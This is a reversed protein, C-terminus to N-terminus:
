HSLRKCLPGKEDCTYRRVNSPDRKIKNQKKDKKKNQHHNEKKEKKKYNKRTHITFNPDKTGGMKEERTVLRAEEQTCEERLQSSFMLKSRAYIVQIFSDWSRPLGNLTTM